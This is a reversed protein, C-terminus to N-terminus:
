SGQTYQYITSHAEQCYIFDEEQCIGEGYWKNDIVDVFRRFSDYIPTGNFRKLHQHNTLGRSFTKKDHEELRLLCALFLHRIASIFDKQGSLRNAELELEEPKPKLIEESLEFGSVPGGKKFMLTITYVIHAILLILIVVLAAIIFWRIFAPLGEMLGNLFNFIGAIWGFIQKILDLIVSDDARSVSELQYEDGQVIELAKERITSSDPLNETGKM